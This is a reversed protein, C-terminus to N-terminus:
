RVRPPPDAEQRLVVMEPASRCRREQSECGPRAPIELCSVPGIGLAHRNQLPGPVDGVRDPACHSRGIYADRLTTKALRHAGVLAGQPERGPPAAGPPPPRPAPRAPPRLAAASIRM